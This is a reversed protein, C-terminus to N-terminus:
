YVEEFGKRERAKMEKFVAETVSVDPTARLGDGDSVDEPDVDGLADAKRGLMMGGDEVEEEGNKEAV